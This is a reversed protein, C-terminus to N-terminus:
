SQADDPARFHGRSVQAPSIRPWEGLHHILVIPSLLAVLVAAERCPRHETAAHRQGAALLVGLKMLIYDRLWQFEFNHRCRCWRYADISRLPPQATRPLPLRRCRCRCWTLEFLPEKAFKRCADRPLPLLSAYAFSATDPEIDCLAIYSTSHGRPCSEAM